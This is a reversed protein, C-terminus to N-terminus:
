NKFQLQTLDLTQTLDLMQTLNLMQTLGVMVRRKRGEEGSARGTAM